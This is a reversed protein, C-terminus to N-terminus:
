FDPTAVDEVTISNCPRCSCSEAKKLPVRLNPSDLNPCSLKVSAVIFKDAKCCKCSRELELYNTSSVRTYSLCMGRCGTSPVSKPRCGPVSITHITGVPVCITSVITVGSVLFMLTSFAPHSSM